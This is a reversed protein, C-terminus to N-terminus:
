DNGQDADLEGEEDTTEDHGLLDEIEISHAAQEHEGHLILVIRESLGQYHERDRDEHEGIEDDVQEIRPEIRADTEASSNGHDIEGWGKGPGRFLAELDLARRKGARELETAALREAGNPKDHHDDHRRGTEGRLPNRWVVRGCV